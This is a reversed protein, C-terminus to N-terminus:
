FPEGFLAFRARQYIREGMVDIFLDEPEGDDSEVFAAVLEWSVKLVALEPIELAADVAHDADPGRDRLGALGFVLHSHEFISDRIKQVSGRYLTAVDPSPLVKSV